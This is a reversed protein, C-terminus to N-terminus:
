FDVDPSESLKISLENFQTKVKQRFELSRMHTLVLEIPKLFTEQQISLDENSLSLMGLYNEQGQFNIKKWIFRVCIDNLNFIYDREDPRKEQFHSWFEVLEDIVLDNM